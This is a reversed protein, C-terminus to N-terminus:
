ERVMEGLMDCKLSPYVIGIKTPYYAFGLNCKAFANIYDVNADKLTKAFEKANFESGLDPIKPM